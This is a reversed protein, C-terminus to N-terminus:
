PLVEVAVTGQEFWQSVLYSTLDRQLYEPGNEGLYPVTILLRTCPEPKPVSEPKKPNPAAVLVSESEPAAVPVSESEPAAVPVSEPVSAPAADSM